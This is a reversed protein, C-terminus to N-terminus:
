VDRRRTGVFILAAALLSLAGILLQLEAPTATTPMGSADWNQGQPKTNEIRTSDLAEGPTRAPTKDIAVLSTYKSVLQYELALPLVQARVQDDPGQQNVIDEIRNRAWLTAVGSRSESNNLSIQRGWVRTSKGTIILTGRAQHPLRATIVLPEDAYLDGVRAPAYDPTVDNPWHLEIDTLVPSTLKHLLENMRQAVEGGNGIFTFTGRGIQAATRMFYGNPASGIGVTFLRADGLGQRIAYMLEAENSVAGDTIFVIQRLFEVGQPMRFAASLAPLMETGGQADLGTVYRRATAINAASAAVPEDFLCDYTSNFQILNFRDTPLLTGLGTLLADRAQEISTGSMSGSTDIIFIVERSARFFDRRKGPTDFPGPGSEVLSSARLPEREQPPMFMLLVHEGSATSQRFLATAPGGHVVPTWALQFDHDPAVTQEALEVRYANGDAQYITIGHYASTINEVPVGADISISFSVSQRSANARAFAPQLDGLTATDHPGHAENLLAVPTEPSIAEMDASAAGPVYRPTITLPFRLSYRGGLQDVIQLYSITIKITEHPGINAVATRFINPRQQHVVSARQGNDRAKQYLQQADAKERIEGVIVREGVEMHLQDVASNEPLPFAYIGEVWRDSPNQFQQTVRVRAIIATVEMGIDSHVRPAPLAGAESQFILTGAGPDLVEQAASPRCQLLILVTAALWLAWHQSLFSHISQGDVRTRDQM